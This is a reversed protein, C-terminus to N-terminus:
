ADKCMFVLPTKVHRQVHLRQSKFFCIDFFNASFQASGNRAHKTTPCSTEGIEKSQWCSGGLVENVKNFETVRRDGTSVRRCILGTKSFLKCRRHMSVTNQPERGCVRRFKRLVAVM